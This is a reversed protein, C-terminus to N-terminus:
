KNNLLFPNAPIFDKRVKIAQFAESSRDVNWGQEGQLEKFLQTLSLALTRATAVKNIERSKGLTAKIIDGYDNYYQLRSSRFVYYTLSHTLSHTLLQICKIRNCSCSVYALQHDYFSHGHDRGNRNSRPSICILWRFDIEKMILGVFIEYECGVAYVSRM